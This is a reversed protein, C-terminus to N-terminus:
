VVNNHLQLTKFFNKFKNLLFMFKGLKKEFSIVGLKLFKLINEAKKLFIAQSKEV